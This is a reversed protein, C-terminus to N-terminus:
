LKARNLAVAREFDGKAAKWDNLAFRGVGRVQHFRMQEDAARADASVALASLARMAEAPYGAAIRSNVREIDAEWVAYERTPGPAVTRLLAEASDLQRIEEAQKGRAGLFSAFRIRNNAEMLTNGTEH